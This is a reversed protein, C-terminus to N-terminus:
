DPGAGAEEEEEEDNVFEVEVPRTIMGAAVGRQLFLGVADRGRQGYDLTFENVYLRVYEDARARDLGRAYRLAYELAEDRHAFAYAISARLHRSVARMLEPGLEKRVVHGRLPLPLGTEGSWWAGLDIVLQLGREAYTLQREHILLGADVEGAVVAEEIADFPMQVAKFDPEYLNLALYASTLPGPVAIKKGRVADRAIPARAVLRPGYGEGMSAGHPLLAYRDALYAYAHISVASVDLEGLAARQNLSEIDQRELAYRVGDTDIREEALAFFLFADDPDLNHAVRLVRSEM